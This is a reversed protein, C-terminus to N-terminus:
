LAKLVAEAMIVRADRTNIWEMDKKNTIFGIEILISPMPANMVALKGRATDKEPLLRAKLKWELDALASILRLAFQKDAEDRYVIRTGTATPGAADLHFSVFRDAGFAVAKDDRLGVPDPDMENSRSMKTTHGKQDAIFKLAHGYQLAVTAEQQGGVGVAGCDYRGPSANGMGHGPDIFLKM